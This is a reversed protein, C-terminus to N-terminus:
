RPTPLTVEWTDAAYHLALGHATYLDLAGTANETDVGLGITDRGRAAYVAFAHRLLHGAIGRGRAPARVGLNRIWAMAARDDRTLVVAVDGAGALAAIWVLSWDMGAGLDDLWQQHGRAQHDHHGAFTEEVLAHARRRDAETECTRLTLGPPPIPAPDAARSLPRTLVHYRRVAGWGRRTLTAPDLAPRSNLTLHVVARPAGNEAAREAARTEIAALVREGADQHDPLVYHDADIRDAGSDDWLLGYAVLRGQHFALWSNRALDAEPHILDTEVTGLDTEPHGVEVMDIANLLRCIEAADGPTAARVTPEASRIREETPTLEDM